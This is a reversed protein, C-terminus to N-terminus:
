SEGVIHKGIRHPYFLFGSEDHTLVGYVTDANIICRAPITFWTDAEGCVYVTRCKVGAGMGQADAVPCGRVASLTKGAMWEAYEPTSGNRCPEGVVDTRFMRIGM